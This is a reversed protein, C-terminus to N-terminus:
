SPPSPHPNTTPNRTTTHERGIAARESHDISRPPTRIPRSNDILGRCLMIKLGASYFSMMSAYASRRKWEPWLPSNSRPLGRAPQTRRSLRKGYAQSPREIAVHLIWAIGISWVTVTLLSLWASTGVELLLRLAAYGAVGHVVYLPYSISAFFNTVRNGSLWAPFTFAATFTLVAFGYSPAFSLSASSPGAWWQIYFMALLTGICLYAKNPDLQRQHLYHFAVGIFMFVLFQASMLAVLALRHLTVSSQISPLQRGLWLAILFLAVPALFVALSRRQFLACMAACLLYFKMEVELTWVIGDIGRSGMVDRLGPVYHILVEDATYPWPKAFYASACYIATLTISFGVAYTPLIRFIRNVIFRPASSTQFSFPIVFGSIIFFLAVGYAGWHFLPFANLWAVYQPTAHIEQLVPTNTLSGVAPRRLWFVGFYHSILVAVAAFGRLTNAFEVRKGRDM